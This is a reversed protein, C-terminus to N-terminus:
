YPRLSPLADIGARTRHQSLFIALTAHSRRDLWCREDPVAPISCRFCSGNLARVHDFDSHGRIQRNTLAFIWVLKDMWASDAVSALSCERHLGIVELGKMTASKFSSRAKCLTNRSAFNQVSGSSMSTDLLGITALSKRWNSSATTAASTSRSPSDARFFHSCHSARSSDRSSHIAPTSRAFRSFAHAPNESSSRRAYTVRSILGNTKPSFTM